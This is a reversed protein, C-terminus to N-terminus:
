HKMKWQQIQLEEMKNKDIAYCTLYFVQTVPWQMVQEFPTLSIECVRLVMSLIGYQAIPNADEGSGTEEESDDTEDGKENAQFM